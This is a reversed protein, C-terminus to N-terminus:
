ADRRRLALAAATIAAVTWGLLVLTAAVPGLFHAEPPNDTLMIAPAVRAPLVATAEPAVTIMLPLIMIALLIGIAAGPSRTLMGLSVGLASTAAFVLAGGAVGRVVEPDTLAGIEDAAMAHAAVFAAATAPLVLVAVLGAHVALKAVLVPLRRPIAALTVRMTGAGYEGTAALVGTIGVLLEVFLIVSLIADGGGEDTGGLPLTLVVAAMVVLTAAIAGYALVTGRLTALKLAESAVVRRITVGTM